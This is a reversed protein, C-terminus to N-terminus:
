RSTWKGKLSTSDIQKFEGAVCANLSFPPAPKGVLTEM